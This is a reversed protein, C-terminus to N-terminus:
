TSAYRAADEEAKAKQALLAACKDDGSQHGIDDPVVVSMQILAGADIGHALLRTSLDEAQCCM